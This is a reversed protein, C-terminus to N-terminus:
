AMASCYKLLMAAVANSRLPRELVGDVKWRALDTSSLEVLGRTVLMMPRDPIAQRLRKILDLSEADLRVLDVLMADFRGPTARGAALAADADSFGVPEYGLAALMEEDHLIASPDSGLLMVTQGTGRRSTAAMTAVAPVSPLWVAFTSGQGPVSRVDLVGDHDHVIERVTALGLGTGAPRTTFFPQFIHALMAADMGTGTDTVQFRLYNGPPLDDHSLEQAVPVQQADIQVTIRGGGEMAQAANRVLNLLVQHLQVADGRVFRGPAQPEIVLEVNGPLLVRLMSTTEELLADVSITRHQTSNRTGFELIRGALEQARGAAQHIEKVHRASATDPRVQDAAMEAHGLIAGIVNNFNHAIGSAFTGIAELRRARSLRSELELRELTARRRQLAHSVVEGAMRVTGPGGRPWQTTARSRDFALLGVRDTDHRLVVGCWSRNGVALLREKLDGAPLSAVAPVDLLQDAGEAMAFAPELVADPWAAPLEVGPRSWLRVSQPPGTVMLYARDAACASGLRSLMEDLMEDYRDLPCAIFRTSLEAIIYELEVRERLLRLGARRQLGLRVLLALLMIAVGYLALRFRAARTEESLRRADQSARISQRLDYTSISFLSRLDEDVGPLLQELIRGHIVLLNMERSMLTNGADDALAAVADLRQRVAYQVPASPNRTLHLVSNGLATIAATMRPDVAAALQTDLIDFYALSNQLLANDTKFRELAVEDQVVKETLADLLGHDKARIMAQQRLEAAGHSLEGIDAVLPDYNQLLGARSQLVDRRLGAESLSVRAVDRQAFVYEAGQPGVSHLLLWTLLAFLALVAALSRLSSKMSANM